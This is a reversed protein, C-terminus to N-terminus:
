AGAMLVETLWEHNIWIQETTVYSYPDTTIIARAAVMDLGFRLHGWLDPDAITRLLIVFLISFSLTAVGVQWLTQQNRAKQDVAPQPTESDFMAAVKKSPQGAIQTTASHLRPRRQSRMSGM